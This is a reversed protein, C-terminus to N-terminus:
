GFVEKNVANEKNPTGDLVGLINKVTTAAMREVSEATVGAMHASVITNSLGYIPNDAAPPEKDFVDIGAGALKGGSLAAHLAGEDILGEIFIECEAATARAAKFTIRSSFKVSREWSSPSYKKSCSVSIGLVCTLSTRPFPSKIPTSNFGSAFPARRNQSAICAFPM